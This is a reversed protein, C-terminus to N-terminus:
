TCSLPTTLKARHILIEGARAILELTQWSTAISQSSKHSSAMGVSPGEHSLFNIEQRAMSNNDIIDPFCSAWNSENITNLVFMKRFSSMGLTREGGM